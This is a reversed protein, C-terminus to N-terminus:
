RSSSGTAAPSGTARGITSINTACSAPSATMTWTTATDPDALIYRSNFINLSKNEM